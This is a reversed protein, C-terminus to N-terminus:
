IQWWGDGTEPNENDLNYRWCKGTDIEYFTSDNDLDAPTPKDDTSLGVYDRTYKDTYVNTESQFAITVAM